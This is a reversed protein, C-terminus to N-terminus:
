SNFTHRAQLHKTRRKEKATKKYELLALRKFRHFSSAHPAFVFTVGFNEIIIKFSLYSKDILEIERKRQM